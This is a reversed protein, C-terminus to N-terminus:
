LNIKDNSGGTMSSLLKLPVESVNKLALKLKNLRSNSMYPYRILAFCIWMVRVTGQSFDFITEKVEELIYFM